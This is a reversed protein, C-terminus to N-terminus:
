QGGSCVGSAVPRRDLRVCNPTTVRDSSVREILAILAETDRELQRITRLNAEAHSYPM